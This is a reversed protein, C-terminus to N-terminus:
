QRVMDLVMNHQIPLPDSIKPLHFWENYKEAYYGKTETLM